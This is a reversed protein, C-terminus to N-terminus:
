LDCDGREGFEVNGLITYTKGSGTQGYMLITVDNGKIGYNVFERCADMYIEEQTADQDFIRDLTFSVVVDICEYVRM